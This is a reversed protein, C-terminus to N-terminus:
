RVNHKLVYSQYTLYLKEEFTGQGFTVKSGTNEIKFANILDVIDGLTTNYIDIPEMYFCGVKESHILHSKFSRVLDLSYCYHMKISRDFVNVELNNISNYIWTSLVSNYNPKCGPGFIHPLRYIWATAKQKQAYKEVLKESELKTSGYATKPALAHITSTLLIPTKKNERSLFDVMKETLENNSSAFEEDSSKPKVEGAFHFIFDALKIHKHLVEDSDGRCFELVRVNSESLLSTRLASGLFGHAGTILLNIM